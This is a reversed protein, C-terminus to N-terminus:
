TTGVTEESQNPNRVPEGYPVIESVPQDVCRSIRKVVHGSLADNVRGAHLHGSGTHDTYPVRSRRGLRNLMSSSQLEAAFCRRLM